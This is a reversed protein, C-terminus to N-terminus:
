GGESSRSADSSEEVHFGDPMDCIARIVMGDSELLAYNIISRVSVLKAEIIGANHAREDDVTRRLGEVLELSKYGKELTKCARIEVTNTRNEEGVVPGKLSRM